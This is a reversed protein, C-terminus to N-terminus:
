KQDRKLIELDRMCEGTQEPMYRLVKWGMLQAANYKEMDNKIGIGSSHGLRSKSFIAGEIEIAIKIEPVAFDFRWKRKPHFKYEKVVPRKLTQKIIAEFIPYERKKSQKKAAEAIPNRPM